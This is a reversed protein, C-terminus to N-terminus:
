ERDDDSRRAIRMPADPADARVASLVTEAEGASGYGTGALLVSGDADRVRWGWGDDTPHIEAVPGSVTVADADPALDRARDVAARAADTDDYGRPAAAVIRREHRIRWRWGDEEYLETGGSLAERADAVMEVAERETECRDGSVALVAGDAAVLRWTWERGDPTVQFTAPDVGVPTADATAAAIREVADIASGRDAYTAAAEGAASGGRRLRVTWGPDAEHVEFVAAADSAHHDDAEDDGDVVSKDADAIGDADDRPEDSGDGDTSGEASRDPDRADAPGEESPEPQSGDEVQEPRGAYGAGGDGEDPGPSPPDEPVAGDSAAESTARELVERISEATQDTEESVREVLSRAREADALAEEIIRETERDRVGVDAGPVIAMLRRLDAVASERDDYGGTEAVVRGDRHRVRFRWGDDGEALEFGLPDLEIVGAEPVADSAREYAARARTEDAYTEPAAAIPEDDAALRWTWGDDEVLIPDDTAGKLTEVAAIAADRDEFTSPSRALLTGDRHRLRWTWASAHDDDKTGEQGDPGAQGGPDTREPDDPGTEDGLDRYVEFGTPAYELTGAGPAAVALEDVAERAADASEVAVGSETLIADRDDRLRWRWGGGTEYLEVTGSEPEAPTAEATAAAADGTAHDPTEVPSPPDTRVTLRVSGIGEAIARVRERVATESELPRPSAALVDGDEGLIRWHWGNRDYAEVAFSTAEAGDQDRKEEDDGGRGGDEDNRGRGGDGDDTTTEDDGKPFDTGPADGPRTGGTGGLLRRIWRVLANGESDDAM